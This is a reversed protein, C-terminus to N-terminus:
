AESNCAIFVPTPSKLQGHPYFKNLLIISATLPILLFAPSNPRLNPCCGHAHWKYMNQSTMAEPCMRVNHSVRKDELLNGRNNHQRDRLYDNLSRVVLLPKGLQTQAQSGRSQSCFLMLISWIEQPKSLPFCLKRMGGTQVTRLMQTWSFNQVLHKNFIALYM